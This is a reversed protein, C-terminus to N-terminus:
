LAPANSTSTQLLNIKDPVRNNINSNKIDELRDKYPDFVLEMQGETDRERM